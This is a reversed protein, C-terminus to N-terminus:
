SASSRCTLIAYVTQNIRDAFGEGMLQRRMETGKRQTESVPM